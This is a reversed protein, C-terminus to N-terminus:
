RAGINVSDGFQSFHAEIQSVGGLLEIPIALFIEVGTICEACVIWKDEASILVTELCVPVLVWKFWTVFSNWQIRGFHNGLWNYTQYLGHVKRADINVSDGFLGFQAEMQGVDVQLEM